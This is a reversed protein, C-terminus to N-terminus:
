LPKALCSRLHLWSVEFGKISAYGTGAVHSGIFYKFATAYSLIASIGLGTSGILGSVFPKMKHGTLGLLLVMFLPLLPILLTYLYNTM